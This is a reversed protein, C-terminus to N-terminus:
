PYTRSCPWHVQFGGQEEHSAKAAFKHFWTVYEVIVQFHNVDWVSTFWSSWAWYSCSQFVQNVTKQDYHNIIYSLCFIVLLGFFVKIPEAKSAAEMVVEYHVGTALAYEIALSINCYTEVMNILKAGDYNDPLLSLESSSISDSQAKDASMKLWLIAVCWFSADFSFLALIELCQPDRCQLGQLSAQAKNWVCFM